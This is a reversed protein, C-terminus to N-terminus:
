VSVVLVVSTVNTFSSKIDLLLQDLSLVDKYELDMEDENGFNITAWINM